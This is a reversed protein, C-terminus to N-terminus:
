RATARGTRELWRRFMQTVKKAEPDTDLEEVTYKMKRRWNPHEHTTGPLNLQEGSKTLDEQNLCFLMCPTSALFGIVADLVSDPLVWAEATEPPLAVAEAMRRKDHSRTNRQEQVSADDKILGAEQRVEIDRGSWFGALTPLDHTTTSALAQSPYEGPQKYRGDGHKEFFFLRYSLIGYNTLAARTEDSVTGLDEGVVLMEGRVSELALIKLLDAARDRVYAGATAKQGDPIWFLRFLRMVHDIRLAGGHRATKRIGEAFLRYGTEFHKRTNPPPFAWDQGDPSFDDPPSGVRCGNVYFDSHAWVDAGTRDTALALDHYLGIPMGLDRTQAQVRALQLDVQWQAYQYFLVMRWHKQAFAEVEPSNPNQYAAPWDTWLWINPDERHIWEDLACYIAFRRLSEGERDLYKQFEAARATKKGREGSLFCRFACRLARRKLKYVREYEVLPAARLEAASKPEQSGKWDEVAAVDLYLLNRYLISTPLYPSANYPQRNPIAHLPNLAVFALENRAAWEVLAELDTFDGCGWNRESRLGYLSVSLGASKRGQKLAEPWYAKRPCVVLNAKRTRDGARLEVTHFGLGVDGSPLVLVRREYHVGRIEATADNELMALTGGFPHATGSELHVIGEFAGGLDMSSSLPIRISDEFVVITEPLLSGWEEVMRDEIAKTLDELSGCRVGLTGLISVIVDDAVVHHKGWIDYYEADIGCLAAAQRLAEGKDRPTTFTIHM